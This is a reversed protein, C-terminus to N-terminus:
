GNPELGGPPSRGERIAKVTASVADDYPPSHERKKARAAIDHMTLIGKLVGATNIVPLRRVHARRMISLATALDDEMMCTAPERWVVDRATIESAPRNRTGLAICIDRDTLVGKLKGEDLVPLAGCNAAWMAAVAEALNTNPTCCHVDRTMVERVKM